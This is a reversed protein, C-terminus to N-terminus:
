SPAVAVGNTVCWAEWEDEYVEVVDALWDDAQHEDVLQIVFNTPDLVDRVVKQVVLTRGDALLLKQKPAPRLM